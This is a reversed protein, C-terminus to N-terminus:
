LEYKCVESELIYIKCNYDCICMRVNVLMCDKLFVWLFM